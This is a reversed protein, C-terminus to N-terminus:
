KGLTKEDFNKITIERFPIKKIKFVKLLAEKQSIKIDEYNKNNLYNAKPGFVGTRTKLKKRFNTSFVYFFKDKPGDLYLQLLSHHDKPANSIVPIFGKGKKGLSESLLQQCWYLFNELEPIYNLFILSGKKKNKFRNVQKNLNLIIKRNKIIKVLDTKFTKPNLGMLFTPLMGVDSMVSYRGGIFKNHKIFKFNRKKAFESLISKKDDSLIIVNNKKLYPLFYSSNIITEKTNGSKSIIVFLSKGLNNKKKVESLLEQDLNDLFIIKKKIKHKLFSYIAKSGLISGGMGIIIITKFKKFKKLERIDFNYKTNPFFSDYLNKKNKFIRYGFYNIKSM